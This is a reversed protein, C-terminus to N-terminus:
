SGEKISTRCNVFEDQPSDEAMEGLKCLKSKKVTWHIYCAKLLNRLQQVKDEPSGNDDDQEEKDKALANCNFDYSTLATVTNARL